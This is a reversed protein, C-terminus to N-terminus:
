NRMSFPLTYICRVTKGNQIGPRWKGSDSVIKILNDDWYPNLSKIIKFHSLSGDKEVVFQLILLGSTKHASDVAVAKFMYEGFNRPYQPMKEAKYFLLTDAALGKVTVTDSKQAKAIFTILSFLAILITKKM